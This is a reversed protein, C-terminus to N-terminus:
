EQRSDAQRADWRRDAYRTRAVWENWRPDVHLSALFPSAQMEWLMRDGSWTGPFGRLRPRALWDFAESTEGRYALVEAVRFPDTAEVASILTALAANAETQKGLAHNVLALAHARDAGQTGREIIALAEEFRRLLVLVEAVSFAAMTDPRLEYAKLYEAKAEEFRGAALLFGGLNNISTPSVPDLSVVRRQLMVAEDYRGQEAADGAQFGLVLSSDPNLASGKRFFEAAAARDGRLWHYNALRLHGEASRPEYAITKRAADLLKALGAERPLTGDLIQLYSIAAVGSWARAYRPDLAVAQEFASMARQMDGPMRRGYYFQGRLFHEYAQPNATTGSAIREQSQLKAQLAEAVAAAIESQVAFVDDVDRDYTMSWVHSSNSADILQATIRVRDEARRVSGELVHTVQLTRAITAIDADKGRFSFSSTRAIVRLNPVRTLLNILEESLGDSFHAQDGNASMDVFPLVAISRITADAAGDTTTRGRQVLFLVAAVLCLSLSVALIAGIGRPKPQKAPEPAPPSTAEIPAGVPVKRVDAVFRYGRGPVTVISRHEDPREGLARRIVYITQSLNGEEVVLNPWVAGLLAAKEVVQGAHEVLYLLTDFARPTLELTRGKRHVVGRKPDLSFEGFEFAFPPVPEGM